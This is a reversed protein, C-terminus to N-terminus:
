KNLNKSYTILSMNNIILKNQINFKDQLINPSKTGSDLILSDNRIIKWEDILDHDIFSKLIKAGGEVLVNRYGMDYIKKSVAHLDYSDTHLYDINADTEGQNNNGMVVIKRNFHPYLEKVHQNSLILIDPQIKGATYRNTLQPQDIQWTQGGIIILDVESRLKHSYYDIEESSIKTRENPRGLYGDRSQAMKGIFYPRHRTQNIFFRINLEQQKKIFNANYADIGNKLLYTMGQGQVKPNFDLSGMIVKPIKSKVIFETCPPTKGHFTCPELSIYLTSNRIIAPDIASHLCNVEAHPGGFEMHFGESVIKEEYVLVAGVMPNSRTLGRGKEAIEFARRLFPNVISSFDIM